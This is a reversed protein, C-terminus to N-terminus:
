LLRTGRKIPLALAAFIARADEPLASDMVGCRGSATDQFHISHVRQLAYRIRDPTLPKGAERLLQELYREMFLAIFCVLVHAHIRHPTWHFMPRIELQSKGVRFAEEVRWLDKYQALAAVNSLKSDKSVAIAHFGDWSAAKAAQAENIRWSGDGDIKVLNRYGNNTVLKKMKPSSPAKGLKSELRHMIRDRDSKDKAARKKSWTVILDANPYRPHDLRRVRVEDDENKGLDDYTTLDNLKLNAPLHKIKCAAVYGIGLSRLKELNDKSALGRDCVITIRKVDFREKLKDIMPAVTSVEATNGAFTEYAVPVGEANVVLCLVVQVSHHKQDKSFGFNRLEDTNVSEFYLTTVDVFLCEISEKFLPTAPPCAVALARRQFLEGASELLDMGRYIHHLKLDDIGLDSQREYTRLKSAPTFFRQAVLIKAIRLPDFALARNRKVRLQDFGTVAFLKEVVTVCGDYVTQQHQLDEIRAVPAATKRSSTTKPRAKLAAPTPAAPEEFLQRQRTREQQLKTLMNQALARLRELDADDQVSGLSALVRQKVKDGDRTNEVIQVIPNVTGSTKKLRVFM